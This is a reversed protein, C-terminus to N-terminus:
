RLSELWGVLDAFDSPSMTKDLMPPMLSVSLQERSVMERSDITFERGGADSYFHSGGKEGLLFGVHEEGGSMTVKWGAFQPAVEASPDQIARIIHEKGRVGIQSLDPGGRKGFGLASHCQACAQHFIFRGRDKANKPRVVEAASDSLSAFARVRESPDSKVMEDALKRAGDLDSHAPLSLAIGLRTEEDGQRYLTQLQAIAVKERDRLLAFAAKKVRDSGTRLTELFKKGLDNEMVKEGDLRARATVAAHYLRPSRCQEMERNVAERFDKLQKDAIWKLALLRLIEDGQGPALAARLLNPGNSTGHYRATLLELIARDREKLADGSEWNTIMKTFVWPDTPDPQAPWSSTFDSPEPEWNQLRWVAGHGHLKYDRKVWDSIYLSGDPAVAMAVPRFDLGGWVLRKQDTSFHTKEWTLPYLEVRHDSWSAVLLSGRHFIVDCPAEGTGHLMPLTGPLEGNWSVFPHHGGRGYRYQYGYDGGEVVYHLRSPPRSSPDNDTAFLHGGPASCVGFPNWFGTAYRRLKEGDRSCHWINGGEGQDSHNSGDSGSLTYAAGLNEGIGFILDGNEDFCLGSCGNHPYNGETELFVIKREVSGPDAQGDDDRDWVRLIENRTAIYIAGSEPHVAIDMTATLSDDLFVSRRDAAGDGDADELWVIQDHEPGEYGEPRFHTHSEVVLLKGGKTFCIGTPHKILEKGAFLSVGTKPNPAAPQGTDVRFSFRTSEFYADEPRLLTTPFTERNPTDPYHQTEFCIAGHKPFPKGKFHNASYIQVGPQTTIVEMTRGSVPDSLVGVKGSEPVVFCHDLGPFEDSFAGRDTRQRKRYDFRTNEVSLIKGTPIKRDDFELYEGCDLKLLHDLISTGVGRLNFYAHNSLNVHTPRDTKARFEMVLDGASAPDKSISELRYQVWVTLNGPFGEHGDESEHRLTISAPRWAFGAKEPNEEITWNQRHFGTKGGHIQINTRRNVSELDFRKGDITFGGRDIRNAYRGIVAAFPEKGLATELNPHGLVVNERKGSRDPVLLRVVQAGYTAIEATLNGNHLTILQVEGGGPISGWSEVEVPSKRNEEGCYVGSSCILFALSFVTRM